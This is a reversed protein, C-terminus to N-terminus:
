SLNNFPEFCVNTSPRPVRSCWATLWTRHLSPLCLFTAGKGFAAAAAHMGAGNLGVQKCALAADLATPAWGPYRVQIPRERMRAVGDLVFRGRGAAAVAATLPRM